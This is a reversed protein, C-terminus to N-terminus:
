QVSEGLIMRRRERATTATNIFLETVNLGTKASTEFYDFSILDALLQGELTSVTRSEDLDAKNGVLAGGLHVDDPLCLHDSLASYWNPVEDFTARDSLDFVLIVHHAGQFFRNRLGLFSQQGGVDVVTVVIRGDPFEFTQAKMDVGVTASYSESFEGQNYRRLLSTKGVNPPGIILAKYVEVAM